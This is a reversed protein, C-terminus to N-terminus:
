MRRGIKTRYTTMHHGTMLTSGWFGFVKLTHSTTTDFAKGSGVSSAAQAQNVGAANSNGINIGQQLFTGWGTMTATGGSGTAEVSLRWGANFNFTGGGTLYVGGLTFAGGALSGDVMMQMTYPITSNGSVWGSGGTPATIIGLIEIEFESGVNAEGSQVTLPQSIATALTNTTMSVNTQSVQSRELASDDGVSSIYRPRGLVSSYFVSSNAFSPPGAGSQSVLTLQQAMIGNPYNNGVTDTGAAPAMSTILNGAGISGQYALYDPLTDTSVSLFEAAQIITADVIGAKIIGAALLAATITGAAINSAVITGALIEAATITGAQIVTHANFTTPAWLSGNWESILGTGAAIWIDGTNPNGPATLSITVANGGFTHITIGNSLMAPTLSGNAILAALGLQGSAQSTM